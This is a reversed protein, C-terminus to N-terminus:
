EAERERQCHGLRHSSPGSVRRSDRTRDDQAGPGVAWSPRQQKDQMTMLHPQQWSMGGVKLHLKDGLKLTRFVDVCNRVMKGLSTVQPDNGSWRVQLQEVMKSGKQVFRRDLVQSPVVTM